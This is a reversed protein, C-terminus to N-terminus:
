RGTLHTSQAWKAADCVNRVEVAKQIKGRRNRWQYEPKDNHMESRTLM